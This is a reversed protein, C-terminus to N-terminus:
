VGAGDPTAECNLFVSLQGLVGVLGEGQQNRGSCEPLVGRDNLVIAAGAGKVEIWPDFKLTCRPDVDDAESHHTFCWRM